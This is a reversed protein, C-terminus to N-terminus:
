TYKSGNQQLVQILFRYYLRLVDNPREELAFFKRSDTHPGQSDLQLEQRTAPCLQVDLSSLISSVLQKKQKQHRMQLLNQIQVRSTWKQWKM